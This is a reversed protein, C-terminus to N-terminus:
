ATADEEGRAEWAMAADELVGLTQQADWDARIHVTAGQQDADGDNTFM